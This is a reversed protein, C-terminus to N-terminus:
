QCRLPWTVPFSKGMVQPAMQAQSSGPARVDIDLSLTEAPTSMLNYCVANTTKFASVTIERVGPELAVPQFGTTVVPDVFSSNPPNVAQLVTNWNYTGSEGAPVSVSFVVELSVPTENPAAVSLIEGAAPTARVIEADWASPISPPSPSPPSAPSGDGGGCGVALIAVFAVYGARTFM